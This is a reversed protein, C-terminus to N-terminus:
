RLGFILNDKYVVSKKHTNGSAQFTDVKMISGDGPYYFQTKEYINQIKNDDIDLMQDPMM